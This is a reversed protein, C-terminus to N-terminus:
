SDVYLSVKPEPFIPISWGKKVQILPIQHYFLFLLRELSVPSEDRGLLPTQRFVWSLKVDAYLFLNFGFKLDYGIHKKWIQM